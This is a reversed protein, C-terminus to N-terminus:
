KFTMARYIESFLSKFPYNKTTKRQNTQIENASHSLPASSTGNIKNRRNEEQFDSWSNQYETVTSNRERHIRKFSELRQSVRTGTDLRTPTENNFNNIDRQEIQGSTMIPIPSRGEFQKAEVIEVEENAVNLLVLDFQLGKILTLVEIKQQLDKM